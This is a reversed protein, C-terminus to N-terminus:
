TELPDWMSSWGGTKGYETVTGAFFDAHNESATVFGFWKMRDLAAKDVNKWNQKLGLAVLQDNARQRIFQKIDGSRLNELERGEFVSDIFKDEIRVAIRAAEYIEKKIDKLDANEKMFENFLWVGGRAHLSEDRNSFEIIEGVGKMLGRMSFSLLIAFASYLAVGEGFGSFVALSIAIRKRWEYDSESARRKSPPVSLTNLREVAVEDQLFSKFDTLGLTENLYAYGAIHITNGTIAVKGKRRSVLNQTPVSVCYVKGSYPVEQRKPYTRWVRNSTSLVYCTKTNGTAGGQPLEVRSGAKRNVRKIASVGGLVAIAQVKDVAEENTNYYSGASSGDWLLVEGLISRAQEMTINAINIAKLNKIKTIDEVIGKINFTYRSKTGSTKLSYQVNLESLISELLEKKRDKHLTFDVTFHSEKSQPCLGRLCGDAQIAIILKTFADLEGAVAPRGASPYLYNLGWKGQDSKAKKVKKSGPHKVILDHNPTILIDSTKSKYQHMTEPGDYSVVKAPKVFSIGESILDYQAVLDSYGIDSVNKWGESTLLETQEDFCEMNSFATAMMAIEPKSFIRAVERWYDGILVESQVFSKLINGIITKEDDTLKSAWDGIDKDMNIETSLWFSQQQTLWFDYAKPYEFPKDYDRTELIAM